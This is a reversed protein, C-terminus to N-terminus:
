MVYTGIGRMPLPPQCSLREHLATLVVKPVQRTPLQMETSSITGTCVNALDTTLEQIQDASSSKASSAKQVHAPKSIEPQTALPMTPLQGATLLQDLPKTDIVRM